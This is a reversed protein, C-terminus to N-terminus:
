EFPNILDITCDEFDKINQTALSFGTTQAIAAIQGDFVSMPRGMEKRHGMIEGYQKAAKEDFSLLRPGFALAVFQEFQKNLLKQRQGASMTRLGYGVEAITITSVYLLAPVQNNLWTFVNKSPKSTMFESVINTDLIIL